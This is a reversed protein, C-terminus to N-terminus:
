FREALVTQTPFGIFNLAYYLPKIGDFAFLQAQIAPNFRIRNTLLYLCSMRAAPETRALSIESRFKLRQQFRGM